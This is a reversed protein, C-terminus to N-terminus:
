EISFAGGAIKKGLESLLYGTSGMTIEHHKCYTAYRWLPYDRDVGLGGHLHQAAYSVRHSADGAWCKAIMVATEADGKADLLSIAQQTVLRLCTVDIYCNAARHGVAQFTGIKVGFQEREAVYRATMHMMAETCGVQYSCLAVTHREALFRPTDATGILCDATVSEFRLSYNPEPTSIRLRESQLGQAQCDVLFLRAGEGTMASVLVKDSFNVYPVCLKDGSLQWQGGHQQAILTPALPDQCAHEALALGLVCRGVAADTLLAKHYEEDAEALTMAALTHPILPIKPLVKGAEEFILSLAQYGFDMGGVASPLATGLLGAEAILSWLNRDINDADADQELKRLSDVGCQEQFIKNALARIERQEENYSFDM